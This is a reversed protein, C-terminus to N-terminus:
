INAAANVVRQVFMLRDAVSMTKLAAEIKTFMQETEMLEAKSLALLAQLDNKKSAPFIWGCGDKLNKNFKGGLEKLKDKVLKTDEGRVVISRDTYPQIELSFSSM